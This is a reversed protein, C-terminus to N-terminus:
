TKITKRAAKGSTAEAVASSIDAKPWCRFNGGCARFVEPVWPVNNCRLTVYRVPMNWNTFQFGFIELVRCKSISTDLSM